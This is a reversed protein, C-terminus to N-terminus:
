EASSLLLLKHADSRWRSESVALRLKAADLKARAEEHRNGVIDVLLVNRTVAEVEKVVEHHEQRDQLLFSVYCSVYLVSGLFGLKVLLRM